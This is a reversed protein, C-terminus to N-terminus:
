CAEVRVGPAPPPTASPPTARPPPPTSKRESLHEIIGDLLGFPDDDSWEDSAVRRDFEALLDQDSLDAATSTPPYRRSLERVFEVVTPVIAQATSGLAQMRETDARTLMQQHEHRLRTDQLEARISQRRHILLFALVSVIPLLSTAFHIITAFPTM